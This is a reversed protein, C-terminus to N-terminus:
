LQLTFALCPDLAAGRRVMAFFSFVEEDHTGLPSVDGYGIASFTMYVWYTAAGYAQLLDDDGDRMCWTYDDAGTCWSDIWGGTQSKGIYYFGCATLHNIFVM